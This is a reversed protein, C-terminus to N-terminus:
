YSKIELGGFLVMGKILLQKEPNHAVPMMRKDSFGGFISVVESKVQWDDPIILNSGGFLMFTDIVCAEKSPEAKMLNIDSGGFIATIKGGRFNKSTIQTNGGGFVAMEDIYEDPNIHDSNSGKFAHHRPTTGEPQNGSKRTIILIGIGILIAPWFITSLRVRYNLLEPMWFLLGIGVLIWGTTRNERNSLTILGIFILLTKWSILYYKLNFPLLNSTDLLLLAGAFILLIGAVMRRDLSTNKTEM